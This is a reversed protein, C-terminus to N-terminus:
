RIKFVHIVYKKDEIRERVYMIGNKDDITMAGVRNNYIKTNAFESLLYPKLDFIGYPQIEYPKIEGSAAKALQAPDYFLLMLDYYTSKPGKGGIYPLTPIVGSREGDSTWDYFGYYYEGRAKVGSFIVASKSKGSFWDVSQWMDGENYSNFEGGIYEMIKQYETETKDPYIVGNEDWFKLAYLAPGKSGHSVKINGVVIEKGNLYRNGEWSEPITAM